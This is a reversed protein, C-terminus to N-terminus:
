ITKRLLFENLITTGLAGKIPSIKAFEKAQKEFEHLLEGISRFECSKIKRDIAQFELDICRELEKKAERENETRVQKLRREMDDELTKRFEKIGDFNAVKKKFQALVSKILNRGAEELEEPSVPLRQLIRENLHEEFCQMAETSAKECENKSIYSWINEIQPVGGQNIAGVYKEVIQCFIDGDIARGYFKKVALSNLVKKRM